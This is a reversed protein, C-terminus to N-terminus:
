GIYKKPERQGSSSKTRKCEEWLMFLIGGQSM